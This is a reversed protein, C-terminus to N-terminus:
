LKNRNLQAGGNELRLYTKRLEYCLSGTLNCFEVIVGGSILYSTKM